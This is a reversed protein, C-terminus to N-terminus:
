FGFGFDVMFAMRRVRVRVRVTMVTMVRVLRELAVAPGALDLVDALRKGAEPMGIDCCISQVWVPFALLILSM